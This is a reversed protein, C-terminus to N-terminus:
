KYARIIHSALGNVAHYPANYLLLLSSFFIYILNHSLM